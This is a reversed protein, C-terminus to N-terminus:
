IRRLALPLVSTKLGGERVTLLSGLTEETRTRQYTRGLVRVKSREVGETELMGDEAETDVVETVGM